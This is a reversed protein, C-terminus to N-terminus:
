YSRILEPLVTQMVVQIKQSAVLSAMNICNFYKILEYKLGIIECKVCEHGWLSVLSETAGVKAM